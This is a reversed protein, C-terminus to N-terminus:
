GSCAPVPPAPGPSRRSGGWAAAAEDIAAAIEEEVTVDAVLALAECGDAAIEAAVANLQDRDLAILGVRAGERALRLAAARGIGSGAGTVVATGRAPGTM